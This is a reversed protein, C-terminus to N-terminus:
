NPLSPRMSIVLSQVSCIREQLLEIEQSRIDQHVAVGLMAVDCHKAAQQYLLLVYSMTPDINLCIPSLLM